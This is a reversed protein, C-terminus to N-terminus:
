RAAKFAEYAEQYFHCAVYHGSEVEILEPEQSKCLVKAYPCRPHFRCAPPINAANAV